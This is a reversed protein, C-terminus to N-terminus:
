TAAKHPSPPVSKQHYTPQRRHRDVIEQSWSGDKPGKLAPFHREDDNPLHGPLKTSGCVSEETLSDGYHYLDWRGSMERGSALM